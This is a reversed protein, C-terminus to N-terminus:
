SPLTTSAKFRYEAGRVLTTFNGQWEQEVPNYAMAVGEGIIQVIQLPINNTNIEMDDNDWVILDSLENPQLTVVMSPYGDVVNGDQNTLLNIFKGDAGYKPLVPYYYKHGFGLQQNIDIWDQNAYTDIFGNTSIPNPPLDEETVIIDEDNFDEVYPIGDRRFISYNKPIINRWYRPEDPKGIIKLDDEEFGFM